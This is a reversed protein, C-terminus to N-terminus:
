DLVAPNYSNRITNFTRVFLHNIRCAFMNEGAKDIHVYVKTFRTKFTFFIDLTACLRRHLATKRLNATHRVGIGNGIVFHNNSIDLSTFLFDIKTFNVRDARNCFPQFALFHRPNCTHFLRACNGEGVIAYRHFVRTQHTESHFVGLAKVEFAQAM